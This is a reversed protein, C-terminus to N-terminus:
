IVKIGLRNGHSSQQLDHTYIQFSTTNSHTHTTDFSILPFFSFTKIITPSPFYSWEFLMSFFSFSTLSLNIVLLLCLNKPTKHAFFSHPLAFSHLPTQLALFKMCLLSGVLIITPLVLVHFPTIVCM